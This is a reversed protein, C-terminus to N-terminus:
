YEFLVTSKYNYGIVVGERIPILTYPTDGNIAVAKIRTVSAGDYSYIRFAYKTSASQSEDKVCAILRNNGLRTMHQIYTKSESLIIDDNYKSLGKYISSSGYHVLPEYGNPFYVIENDLYSAVRGLKSEIDSVLRAWNWGENIQIAETINGDANLTLKIQHRYDQGKNNTNSTYTAYCTNSGICALSDAYNPNDWPKLNSYSKLNRRGIVSISTPTVRITAVEPYQAKYTTSNSNCMGSNGYVIVTNDGVRVGYLHYHGLGSIRITPGYSLKGNDYNIVTADLYSTKICENKKYEFSGTDKIGVALNESVPIVRTFIKDSYDTVKPECSQTNCTKEERLQLKNNNSLTCSINKDDKNYAT